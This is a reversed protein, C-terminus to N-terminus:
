TTSVMTAQAYRPHVYAIAGYLTATAGADPTMVLRVWRADAKAAAVEAASLEILFNTGDDTTLVALGASTAATAAGWTNAAVAGSQRYTFAIAAESGSAAATAAEVTLTVSQDASAAAINGFMALFTVAHAAKLDIFQGAKANAAADIPAIQPVFNEYQGLTNHAM